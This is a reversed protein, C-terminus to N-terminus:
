LSVFGPLGVEFRIVKGLRMWIEFSAGILSVSEVEIFSVYSRAYAMQRYAREAEERALTALPLEDIKAVDTAQAENGEAACFARSWISRSSAPNPAIVAVPNNADTLPLSPPAPPYALTARSRFLFHNHSSLYIRDTGGNKGIRRM